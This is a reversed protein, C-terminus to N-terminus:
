YDDREGEEDVVTSSSVPNLALPAQNERAPASIASDVVQGSM